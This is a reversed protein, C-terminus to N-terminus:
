NTRRLAELSGKLWVTAATAGPDVVGETLESRVYSSRGAAAYMRSTAKAGTEAATVAAEFADIMSSGRGVQRKFALNAPILADLM